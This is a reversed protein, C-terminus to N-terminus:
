ITSCHVIRCNVISFRSKQPSLDASYNFHLVWHDYISCFEDFYIWRVILYGTLFATFDDWQQSTSFKMNNENGLGIGCVVNYDEPWSCPLINFPISAFGNCAWINEEWYCATQFSVFHNLIATKLQTPCNSLKQMKRIKKVM